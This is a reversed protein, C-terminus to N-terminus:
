PTLLYTLFNTLFFTHIYTHIYTLLNTLFYTIIYAHIYTILYTLLYTHIYTHLYTLLNTLFYTHIYTILYTLLYTLLYTHLYTFIYTLLYTLLYTLRYRPRLNKSNFTYSCSQSQRKMNTFRTAQHHSDRAASVHPKTCFTGRFLLGPEYGLTFLSILVTALYQFSVGDYFNNFTTAEQMLVCIRVDLWTSTYRVTWTDGSFIERTVSSCHPIRILDACSVPVSPCCWCATAAMLIVVNCRTYRLM